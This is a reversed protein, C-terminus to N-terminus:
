NLRFRIGSCLIDKSKSRYTCSTRALRNSYPTGLWAYRLAFEKSNGVLVRLLIRSDIENGSHKSIM